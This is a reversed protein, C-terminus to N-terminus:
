IFYQIVFILIPVTMRLIFDLPEFLKNYLQNIATVIFPILLVNIGLFVSIIALCAGVLLDWQWDTFTRNKWSRINELIKYMALNMLVEQEIEQLTFM